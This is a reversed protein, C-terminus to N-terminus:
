AHTNRLYPARVYPQKKEPKHIKGMREADNVKGLETLIFKKLVEMKKKEAKVEIRIRKRKWRGKHNKTASM